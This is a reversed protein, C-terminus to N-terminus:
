NTATAVQCQNATAEMFKRVQDHSLGKTPVSISEGSDSFIEIQGNRTGFYIAVLLAAFVGAAIRQGVEPLVFIGIMALGAIVLFIPYSRTSLSCASIKKIPVSKYASRSHSVVEYKVRYNTLLLEDNESSLIITEGNLLSM